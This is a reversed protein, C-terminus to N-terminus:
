LIIWDEVLGWVVDFDDAEEDTVTGVLDTLDDESVLIPFPTPASATSDIVLTGNDNIGSRQEDAFVLGDENATLTLVSAEWFDGLVNSPPYGTPLAGGRDRLRLALIRSAATGSSSYYWIVERLLRIQNSLSLTFTFTAPVGNAKIALWNLNGGGGGPGPQVYTGLAVHPGSFCYDELLSAGFPEVALRVYTQGRKIGDTLMEVEANVVWGDSIVVDASILAEAVRSASRSTEPITLLQQQGSGDYILRAWARISVAADSITHLTLTQGQLIRRYGAGALNNDLPAGLHIVM